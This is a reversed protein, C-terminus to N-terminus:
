TYVSVNTAVATTPFTGNAKGRIEFISGDFYQGTGSNGIVPLGSDAAANIGGSIAVGTGEVGNVGAYLFGGSVRMSLVVAGAPLSAGMSKSAVKFGGSDYIFVVVRYTGGEHTLQMAWFATGIIQDNGGATDGSTSDVADIQVTADVYCSSSASGFLDATTMASFTLMDNTGDFVAAPFGNAAAADYTPKNTAETAAWAAPPNIGTWTTIAAGDAVGFSPTNARMFLTDSTELTWDYVPSVFTISTSGAAVKPGNLAALTCTSAIVVTPTDTLSLAGSLQLTIATTGQGSLVSSITRATAMTGGLSIGALSVSGGYVPFQGAQSLNLVIQDLQDTMVEASVITPVTTDLAPIVFGSFRVANEAVATAIAYYGKTADFPERDGNPDLNDAVVLDTATDPPIYTEVTAGTDFGTTSGLGLVCATTGDGDFTQFYSRLTLDVTSSFARPTATGGGGAQEVTIATTGPTITGSTPSTLMWLSGGYTTGAIVPFVAGSQADAAADFWSPRSWAGTANATWPGNEAPADQATCLVTKNASSQGDITQTGSLTVNSDAAVFCAQKWVSGNGFTDSLKWRGIAGTGIVTTGNRATTDLPYWAFMGLGPIVAYRSTTQPSAFQELQEASAYVPAAVPVYAM